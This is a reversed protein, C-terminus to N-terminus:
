ALKQVAFVVGAEARLLHRQYKEPLLASVVEWLPIADPNIDEVVAWGGVKVKTLAFSLSAINANPSHLGDDIVLDMDGPVLQALAEFSALDTQDVFFTTIRDERFLIRRDIDAGFIEAVELFERFARLSAGPRGQHGMNSVVDTNDTGLGIELVRKVGARDKLIPGYLFHYNHINAKDSGHMDLCRKLEVVARADEPSKPFTTISEVPLRPAGFSSSFTSLLPITQNITQITLAAKDKYRGASFPSFLPFSRLVDLSTVGRSPDYTRSVVTRWVYRKL